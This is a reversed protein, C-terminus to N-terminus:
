FFKVIATIGTRGHKAPFREGASITEIVEEATAGRVAIRDACHPHILVEIPENM